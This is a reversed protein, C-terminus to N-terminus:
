SGLAGGEAPPRRRRRRDSGLLTAPPVKPACRSNAYIETRALSIRAGRYSAVRPCVAVQPTGARFCPQLLRIKRSAEDRRAAVYRVVGIGVRRRLRSASVPTQTPAIRRQSACRNSLDRHDTTASRPPKRPRQSARPSGPVARDTTAVRAHHRHPTAPFARPAATAVRDRSPTSRPM